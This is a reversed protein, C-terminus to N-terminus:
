LPAPAFRQLPRKIYFFHGCRESRWNWHEPSAVRSYRQNYLSREQPKLWIPWRSFSQLWILAHFWPGDKPTRQPIVSCTSSSPNSSNRPSNSSEQRQRRLADAKDLVAAIRKQEDLPPIPIQLRQLKEKNLTKGKAAVDVEEDLRISRLTWFLFNSDLNEPQLVPLAAIAENTYTDIKTVSVKGISLKFSLVVTGSPIL